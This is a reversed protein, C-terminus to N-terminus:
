EYQNHLIIYLIITSFMIGLNPILPNGISIFFICELIIMATLFAGVSKTNM